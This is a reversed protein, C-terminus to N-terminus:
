CGLGLAAPSLQEVTLNFGEHASSFVEFFVNLHLLSLPVNRQISFRECIRDSAGATQLLCSPWRPVLPVGWLSGTLTRIPCLAKVQGPKQQPWIVGCGLWSLVSDPHSIVTALWTQGINQSERSLKKKRGSSRAPVSSRNTIKKLFVLKGPLIRYAARSNQIQVSTFTFTGQEKCLTAASSLRLGGEERCVM